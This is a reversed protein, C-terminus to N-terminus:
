IGEIRYVSHIDLPEAPFEVWGDSYSFAIDRGEPVLTIRKPRSDAKARVVIGHVTMMDQVVPAGAERKDGTYNVLHIFREDGRSNLFMEVNIPTNKLVVLRDQEPYAQDLMWQFMRRYGANGFQFYSHFLKPACYVVTGKGYRNFTIGPGIPDGGPAQKASTSPILSALVKGSVEGVRAYERGGQIDMVPIGYEALSTDTRFYCRPSQQKGLYTVGLLKALAFEKRPNNDADHLSTEGTVLLSGGGTVFKEIAACEADNLIRQDPLVLLRYDGLTKVLTDSNLINMQVHSEILAKHAGNVPYYAPGAQWAPSPTLAEHSWISEASHLVAAEPVPCCGKLYPELAETRRNVEGYRAMVAPDPNGSPYADDSLLSRGGAALQIAVEQKYAATERLSYDGWSNGRTNHLGWSIGPLTGLYRAEVSLNWAYLGNSPPPPDWMIQRVYSPATKPYRTLWAYNHTVSVDPKVEIAARCFKDMYTEMMSNSWHRYAFVHPDDNSTPIEGGIDRAYAERCYQCYCTSHLYQQLVIDTFLGDVDYRSLIEKVQPIQIDDAWNSNLCIVSGDGITSEDVTWQGPDSNYVSDPHSKQYQRDFGSKMYLMRRIGRKKLAETMEGTFDRKLGPHVVGIDTPYYSYGAHCVAFYCVMQFGAEAIMDAAADADFDRYVEKCAGFHADIHLMRYVDDDWTPAGTNTEAHAIPIVGRGPTIGSLFAAGAGTLASWQLFGRRSFMLDM